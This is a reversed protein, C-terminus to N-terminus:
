WWWVGGGGEEGGERRGEWGERDLGRGEEAGDEDDAEGGGGEFVFDELVEPRFFVMGFESEDPKVTIVGRGGERGGPGPMFGM